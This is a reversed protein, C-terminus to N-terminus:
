TEELVFKEIQKILDHINEKNQISIDNVNNISQNIEMTGSAMENMSSTITGSIETLRKMEQTIQESGIMMEHSGSQVESTITNIGMMATLVENSGTNQEQMANMITDEQKRVSETIEFSENFLKEANIADEAINDIKIKLTKLVQTITKGQTSSEEALKRIEDAVVAFGKGADGAHAAEIAANMALLNTQSAIKQIVTSAELLSESEASVEKTLQASNTSAEKIRLSATQLNRIMEANRQLIQTVSNINAVMEEVASSSQTVNTSQTEIHNNLQTITRTM